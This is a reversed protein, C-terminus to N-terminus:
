VERGNKGQLRYRDETDAIIQEINSPAVLKEYGANGAYGDENNVKYVESYRMNDYWYRQPWVKSAKEVESKEVVHVHSGHCYETRVADVDKGADIANLYGL